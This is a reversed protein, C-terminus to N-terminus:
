CKNIQSGIAIVFKSWHSFYIISIFYCGKANEEDFKLKMRQLKDLSKTYEHALRKVEDNLQM